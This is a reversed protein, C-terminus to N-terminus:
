WIYGRVPRTMINLFIGILFIIDLDNWLDVRLIAPKCYPRKIDLKLQVL